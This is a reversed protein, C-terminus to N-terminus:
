VIKRTTKEVQQDVLHLSSLRFGDGAAMKNTPFNDSGDLIIDFDKLIARANGSVLKENFTILM